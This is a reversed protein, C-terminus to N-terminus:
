LRATIGQVCLVCMGAVIKNFCLSLVSFAVYIFTRLWLLLPRVEHLSFLLPPPIVPNHHEEGGGHKKEPFRLADNSM